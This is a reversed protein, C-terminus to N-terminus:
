HPRRGRTRSSEFAVLSEEAPEQPASMSLMLEHVSATGAAVEAVKHAPALVFKDHAREQETFYPFVDRYPGTSQNAIFGLYSWRKIMDGFGTIGRSYLVQIGAPEGHENAIKASLEGAIVQWPSQPPWWYTYYVPPKQWTDAPKTPDKESNHTPDTFNINQVSCQYFDAQWPIAM